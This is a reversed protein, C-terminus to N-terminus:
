FNQTLRVYFFRDIPLDPDVSSASSPGGFSSSASYNLRPKVGFLNNVGVMVTSKYPTKYSLSLDNYVQAKLLNYGTGGSWRGSPHTCDIPASTASGVSWCNTKISSYYRTGLTASYNGKSWDIGVNSKVRYIGYDGVLNQGFPSTSTAKTRYHTVYSTESKIGIRGLDSAPLRYSFSLDYGGTELEGLNANGRALNNVQGTADRTHLGCLPTVGNVYCENLLYNSSVGTIRDKVAVRYWDVGVTLGEVSSPSFLFGMTQTTATEPQLFANGAGAQFPYPTQGGGSGVPAGVANLQRFNVPVGAANCRAKVTADRAAQGNVSDCPDLYSDFSQSGGGFTDGLTPARFGQAFTGRALIDRTPRYTFSAKSNTTEGFNSYDSQRSALNLSLAHAFPANKLLPVELELYSEKVQYAGTTTRAALDTTLNQQEMQGPRDFGSVRRDEWGAAFGMTGAPLKVIEGTLDVHTSSVTSGYTAVGVHNVYNFAAASSASPGGVIDFPVCESLSVPAAASGCQVQGQANLFSPGMARKLNVLNLNGSSLTSGDVKSYNFTTSWTFTRDLFEIDGELGGDVHLTRNNNQTTRPIEITRRVVFLDRGQGAAVGAAKNGFPNFYSDKDLYVPFNPQSQSNFPMGAIQRLSSRDAYMATSTFRVSSSLDMSGKAFISRLETPSTFMMQQTANFLDEEKTASFPHYSSLLRSDQGVGAGSFSGTHNLVLDPAGTAASGALAGGTAPNVWRIRGWPGSILNASYKEPGFSFSTIARDKSWVPDEKLYTFGVIASSKEGSAGYTIRYEKKDGDGLANQGYYVGAEGGDMRKKLIFNMVGAVADSGYISSAGDKLVEVREVMSSPITSLDTFGGVTTSWRRGDVLVLLRQSGLNRLNAFQGGQERNSTLVSGRSFAPSGTSSLQNVIDGVSVLGSKQIDAQTMVLVPQANAKDIQRIRSGTVQVRELMVPQESKPADQALAFTPAASLAAFVALTLRSPKFNSM